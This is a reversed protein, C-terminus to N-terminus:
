PLLEIACRGYAPGRVVKCGGCVNASMTRHYNLRTIWSGAAEASESVSFGNGGAGDRAARRRETPAYAPAEM